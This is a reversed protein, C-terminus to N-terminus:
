PKGLPLFYRACSPYGVRMRLFFPVSSSLPTLFWKQSVSLTLLLTLTHLHAFDSTVLCLVLVVCLDSTLWRPYLTPNALDIVENKLM